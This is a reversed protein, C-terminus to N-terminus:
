KDIKLHTYGGEVGNKAYYEVSRTVIENLPTFEIKGFDELSDIAEIYIPSPVPRIM